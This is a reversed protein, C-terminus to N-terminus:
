RILPIVSNYMEEISSMRDVDNSAADGADIVLNTLFAFIVFKFSDKIASLSNTVENMNRAEIFDINQSQSLGLKTYFRKVNSDGLILFEPQSMKFQSHVSTSLFLFPTWHLWCFIAAKLTALLYVKYSSNRVISTYPIYQERITNLDCVSRVLSLIDWETVCSQYIDIYLLLSDCIVPVCVIFQALVYSNLQLILIRNNCM